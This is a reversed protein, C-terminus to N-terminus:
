TSANLSNIKSTLEYRDFDSLNLIPTITATKSTYDVIEDIIKGTIDESLEIGSDHLVNRIIKKIPPTDITNKVNTDIQAKHEIAIQKKLDELQPRLIIFPLVNNAMDKLWKKNEERRLEEKAIRDQMSRWEKKSIGGRKAYGKELAELRDDIDDIEKAVEQYEEEASSIREALLNDDALCKDYEESINMGGKSKSRSIRRFNECIIEMTDLNCLKLFADKFDSNHNGNFIFDSIKEGDFFYFRFLNPPIIQLLFSEFDSKETESIYKGDKLLRFTETMKKRKIKWSRDFTYTHNEKGDDLLLDIMVSAEGGELKEDTNIIKEIEEYYRANNTGFGYSACGYLCIKIANFLTTKGAGNKGGILVMRKSSDSIDLSFDNQGVYPGINKIKISKIKM